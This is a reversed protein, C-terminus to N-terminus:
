RFQIFRAKRTLGSLRERIWLSRTKPARRRRRWCPFKFRLSLFAQCNDSEVQNRPFLAELHRSQVTAFGIADGVASFVAIGTINGFVAPDLDMTISGQVILQPTASYVQIQTWAGAPASESSVQLALAPRPTDLAVLRVSALLLVAIQILIGRPDLRNVWTLCPLKRSFLM